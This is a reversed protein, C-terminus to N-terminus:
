SLSKGDATFRKEQVAAELDFLALHRFDMDRLARKVELPLYDNNRLLTLTIHDEMYRRVLCYGFMAFSATSIKRLYWSRRNIYNPNVVAGAFLAGLGAGM